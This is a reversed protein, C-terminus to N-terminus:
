GGVREAVKRLLAVSTGSARIMLFKGSWSGPVTWRGEIENDDHGVDGAYHVTDYGQPLDDYSKLFTVTRGARRGQVTAAITRGRM